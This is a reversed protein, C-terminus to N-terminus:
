SVYFKVTETDLATPVQITDRATQTQRRHLTDFCFCASFVIRNLLRATEVNGCFILWVNQVRLEM